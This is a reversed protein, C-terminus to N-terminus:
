LTGPEPHQTHHRHTHHTSPPHPHHPPILFPELCSQLCFSPNCVGSLAKHCARSARDPHAPGTAPLLAQSGARGALLECPLVWRPRAAEKPLERGGQERCGQAVPEKGIFLCVVSFVIVVAAHAHKPTSSGIKQHGHCALLAPCALYALCLGAVDVKRCLVCHFAPAACEESAIDAVAVREPLRRTRATQSNSQQEPCVSVM